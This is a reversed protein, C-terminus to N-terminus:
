PLALVRHEEKEVRSVRTGNALVAREETAGQAKPGSVRSRMEACAEELKDLLRLMMNLVATQKEVFTTQMELLRAMGYDLVPAVKDGQLELPEPEVRAIKNLVAKLREDRKDACQDIATAAEVCAKVSAEPLVSGPLVSGAGNVRGGRKAKTM